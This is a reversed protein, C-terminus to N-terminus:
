RPSRRWASTVIRGHFLIALYSAALPEQQM